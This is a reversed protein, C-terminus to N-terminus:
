ASIGKESLLEEYLKETQSLLNEKSYRSAVFSRGKLGMQVRKAPSQILESLLKAFAGEDDKDALIGIDG